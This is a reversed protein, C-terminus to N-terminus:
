GSKVNKLLLANFILTVCNFIISHSSLVHINLWQVIQQNCAELQEIKDKRYLFIHKQNVRPLKLILIMVKKTYKTSNVLLKTVEERNLKM